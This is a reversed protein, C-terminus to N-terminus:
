ALSRKTVAALAPTFGSILAAFNRPTRAATIDLRCLLFPDTRPGNLGFRTTVGARYGARGAANRLWATDDPIHGYPYAIAVPRRGAAALVWDSSAALEAEAPGPAEHRLSLHTMTHSGIDFGRDALTRVDDRSMFPYRPAGPPVGCAELLGGLAAAREAAPLRVLWSELRHATERRASTTDLARREGNADLDPRSTAALAERLDYWWPRATGDVYAATVFFTAPVGMERLIPAAQAANNRYGDDFTLVAVHRGPSRGARLGDVVDGLPRVDYRRVLHEMQARFLAPPVQLGDFNVVPHQDDDVGHYTLVRVDPRHVRRALALGGCGSAAALVINKILM